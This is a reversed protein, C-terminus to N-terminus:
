PELLEIRTIEEPQLTYTVEGQASMRQRLIIRGQQDIGQFRGEATNGRETAARMSLNEYRNPSRLLGELSFRVRRDLPRSVREPALGAAVSAAESVAAPKAVVADRTALPPFIPWIM